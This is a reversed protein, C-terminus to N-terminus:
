KAPKHRYYGLFQRAGRESSASRKYSSLSLM